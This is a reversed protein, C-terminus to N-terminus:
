TSAEALLCCAPRSSEDCSGATDGMPGTSRGAVTPDLTSAASAPPHLDALDLANAVQTRFRDDNSDRTKEGSFNHQM